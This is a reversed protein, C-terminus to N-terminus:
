KAARFHNRRRLMYYENVPRDDTLMPAEPDGAMLSELSIEKHVVAGFQEEATAFPGWELLDRQARADLKSALEAPSSDPLAESSALFHYGWGEVSHFVRVHAFSAQLAQAFASVVM